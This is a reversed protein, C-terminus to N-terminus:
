AQPDGFRQVERELIHVQVITHERYALGLKALGAKHRERWPDHVHQSSVVLEADCHSRGIVGLGEEDRTPPLGVTRGANLSHKASDGNLCSQASWTPATRAQMIRAGSERNSAQELPVAVPVIDHSAQRKQARVHSVRADAVGLDIEPDGRSQELFRIGAKTGEGLIEKGGSTRRSCVFMELL